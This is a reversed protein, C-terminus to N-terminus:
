STPRDGAALVADCMASGIWDQYDDGAWGRSHTLLHWVHVSNLTWIRDRAREPSLGPALAGLEEIRRVVMMTGNAREDDTTRQHDLLDPDGAAAGAAIQLMLPGVRDLVQRGLAAYGRVFRQPDRVAYLERVEPRDALPVPDDDGVLAVDYAAKLLAPKSDFANYVTQSSVGARRAVAAVTSAAYGQEVFLEIAAALIARRTEGAQRDRVPSVYRRGKGM